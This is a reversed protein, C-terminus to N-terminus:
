NLCALRGRSTEASRKEFGIGNVGRRQMAFAAALRRVGLYAPPAKTYRAARHTKPKANDGMDAFRPLNRRFAGTNKRAARFSNNVM